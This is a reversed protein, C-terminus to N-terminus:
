SAIGLLQRVRHARRDVDALAVALAPAEDAGDALYERYLDAASSSLAVDLAEVHDAIRDLLWDPEARRRLTGVDAALRDVLPLLAIESM